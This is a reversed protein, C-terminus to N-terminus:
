PTRRPDDDQVLVTVIWGPDDNFDVVVRLWRGPDLANQRYFRERGPRPDGEHHDPRRVTALITQIHDLLWDRRGRALHLHSGADFMVRRGDPDVTSQEHSEVAAVICVLPSPSDTNGQVIPGQEHAARLEHRLSKRRDCRHETKRLSPLKQPECLLLGARRQKPRRRKHNAQLLAVGSEPAHLPDSSAGCRTPM